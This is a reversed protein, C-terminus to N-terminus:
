SRLGDNLHPRITKLMSGLVKPTAVVINGSRDYNSGGEFDAIVATTAAVAPTMGLAIPALLAGAAVTALSRRRLTRTRPSM